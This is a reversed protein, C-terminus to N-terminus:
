KRNFREHHKLIDRVIHYYDELNENIKGYTTFEDNFGFPIM